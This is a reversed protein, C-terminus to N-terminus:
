SISVHSASSLSFSLSTMQRLNPHSPCSGFVRSSIPLFNPRVLSRIRCISAAERAFSLFMIVLLSILFSSTRYSSSHRDHVQFLLHSLYRVKGLLPYEEVIDCCEQFICLSEFPDNILDAAEILTLTDM